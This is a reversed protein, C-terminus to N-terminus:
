YQGKTKQHYVCINYTQTRVNLKSCRNTFSNRHTCNYCSKKTAKLQAIVSSSTQLEVVKKQHEALEAELQKLDGLKM